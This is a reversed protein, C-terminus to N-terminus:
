FWSTAVPTCLLAHGSLVFFGEKHVDARYEGAPIGRITVSGSANTKGEYTAGTEQQLKILAGELPVSNEDLVQGRCDALDAPLAERVPSIMLYVLLVTLLSAFRM